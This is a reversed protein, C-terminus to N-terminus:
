GRLMNDLVPLLSRSSVSLSGRHDLIDRRAEMKIEEEEKEEEDKLDCHSQTM